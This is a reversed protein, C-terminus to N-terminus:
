GAVGEALPQSPAGVAPYALVFRGGRPTAELSVRAGDRTALREALAAGLGYVGAVTLVGEDTEICRERFLRQDAESPVRGEFGLAVAVEGAHLEVDLDIPRGRDGFSAACAALRDVAKRFSQPDARVPLPGPIPSPRLRGESHAVVESLLPAVDVPMTSPPVSGQRLRFGERFDNLGVSLREGARLIHRVYSLAREALEGGIGDELLGAFELIVTLPTRLEHIADRVLRDLDDAKPRARHALTALVGAAVEGSAQLLARPLAQTGPPAAAPDGLLVVPWPSAAALVFLEPAPVRREDALVLGVPFDSATAYAHLEEVLREAPPLREGAGLARLVVPGLGSWAPASELLHVVHVCSRAGPSTMSSM